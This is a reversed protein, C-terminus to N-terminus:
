DIPHDALADRLAARSTVGLKPFLQYLHTGVTRPSLFLKDGIQKNTLGAAALLAIERQQPTLVDIARSADTHAGPLGTARLESGARKVWPEAHLRRFIDRAAALHSRAKSASKARRLREGYILHVRAVEFPWREAGPVALAAEFLRSDEPEAAVMAAAATAVLALRPSIEDIGAAQIAAVHAAAEAQRGTRGAAEVVDLIVWLAHASHPVLTGAPSIATAHRYAAEYDARGLAALANVHSAYNLVFGCQRPGAWQIMEDTLAITTQEDGRAAAILAHQFRLVYALLQYNHTECLALAEDALRAVEDWDGSLLGDCGLLLLAEIGATVAGGARGHEVARWLAARCAPLRDVYLAAVGVRIIQGPDSQEGLGAVVEDLRGLVPLARLAPEVYTSALLDILEPPEPRLRAMVARLSEVLEARSGFSVLAQLVWLAEGIVEDKADTPDAATELGGVLLRHATDIAGHGNLLYAAGALAVVLSPPERLVGPELLELINRMDGTVDVGIYAAMVSRRKRDDVQPSLDAARLLLVMAGVPDGRQQVRAAVRELLAAVEEDLGTTSEALHWAHRESDMAFQEALARHAQARQESTSLEVVAARTLPHRFALRGAGGDIHILRAREAADLAQRGWEAAAANQVVRLDGSGELAAILLQGRTEESLNSIRSAFLSQLRRSIPPPTQPAPDGGPRYGSLAIPMELLALPNGQADALLRQRVRPSLTPFRYDVLAAAADDPLPPVELEPLGGGEFFSVEDSRFAALFGVRSDALRRAVFGLVVASVRDLWPMDDVIVVLPRDGAVHTLLALMANSVTLQDPPAGEYLGTTVELAKCYRDSLRRLDEGLPHVVQNLGAFSMDAEFEVGAARIVRAGDATARAAAADLLVSKGVGAEGTLLLGGGGVATTAIFADLQELEAERGFLRNGGTVEGGGTM